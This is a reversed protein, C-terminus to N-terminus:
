KKACREPYLNLLAVTFWMGALFGLLGCSVGILGRDFTISESGNALRVAAQNFTAIVTEMASVSGM